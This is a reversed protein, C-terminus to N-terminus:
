DLAIRLAAACALPAFFSALVALALLIYLYVSYPLNATAADVALTGLILVPILLPLVLLSILAGSSKLGVTLAAGISGIFSLILTGIFLTILLVEIAIGSLNFQLALVPSICLLILGTYTWHALIKAVAILALPCISLALQELVGDQYDDNFLRSLSLMVALLASVWIIGPAIQQLLKTEPGIALPFLSVVLAFFFVAGLTDSQRRLALSIDRKFVALLIELTSIKQM